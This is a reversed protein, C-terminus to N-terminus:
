NKLVLKVEGPHSEIRIRFLIWSALDIRMRMSRSGSGSVSTSTVTNNWGNAHTHTPQAPSSGASSLCAAAAPRFWAWRRLCRCVSARSHDCTLVPSSSQLCVHQQLQVAGRGDALIDASLHKAITAPLVLCLVRFAFMSSCSSPAVGM